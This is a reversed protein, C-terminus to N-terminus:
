SLLGTHFSTPRHLFDDMALAAAGAGWEHETVDWHHIAQLGTGQQSNLENMAATMADVDDATGIRGAVVAVAPDTLAVVHALTTGLRVARRRRLAALRRSGRRYVSSWPEDQGVLGAQAAAAHLARDTLTSNACRATGCTCVFGPPGAVPFHTIDGATSGRGRYLAGDVVLASSIAGAVVVVLMSDSSWPSWLLREAALSRVSNDITVPRDLQRHFPGHLDVDTWGLLPNSILRGSALEVQGGTSVGIGLVREPGLEKIVHQTLTTATRLVVAPSTNNHPREHSALRDGTLNFADVTVVKGQIQTGVVVRGDASRIQLPTEPRGARRRENSGIPAEEIFGENLLLKSLHTITNFGIRTTAALQKRGKPSQLLSRLIMSIHHDRALRVFDTGVRETM